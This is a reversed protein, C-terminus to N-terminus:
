NKNWFNFLIGKKYRVRRNVENGLVDRKTESIQDYSDDNSDIIFIKAGLANKLEPHIFKWNKAIELATKYPPKKWKKGFFVEIHLICNDYSILRSSIDHEIRYQMNYKLFHRKNIVNIDM